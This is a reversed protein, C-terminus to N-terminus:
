KSGAEEEAEELEQQFGEIDEDSVSEDFVVTVEDETSQSESEHSQTPFEDLDLEDVSHVVDDPIVYMLNKYPLFGVTQYQGGSGSKKKSQKKRRKQLDIGAQKLKVRDAEIVTGDISIAQM